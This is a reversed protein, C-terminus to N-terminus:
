NIIENAREEAGSPVYIDINVDPSPSYDQFPLEADRRIAPINLASLQKILIEAENESNASTIKTWEIQNFISKDDSLDIMLGKYLEEGCYSCYRKGRIYEAKCDKCIPM